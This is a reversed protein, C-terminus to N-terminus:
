PGIQSPAGLGSHCFECRRSSVPALDRPLSAACGRAANAMSFGVHVPNRFVPRQRDPADRHGAAVSPENFRGLVQRVALQRIDAESAVPAAADRGERTIVRSSWGAAYICGLTNSVGSSSNSRRRRKRTAAANKQRRQVSAPRLRLSGVPAIASRSPTVGGAAALDRPQASITSSSSAVLQPQGWRTALRVSTPGALPVSSGNAPSVADDLSFGCRARPQLASAAGVCHDVKVGSSSSWPCGRAFIDPRLMRMAM